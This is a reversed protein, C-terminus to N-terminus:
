LRGAYWLEMALLGAEVGLALKAAGLPEDDTCNLGQTIRYTRELVKAIDGYGGGRLYCIAAGAGLGACVAGSLEADDEVKKKFCIATLNSIALARYYMEEGLDDEMVYEQIPLCVGIGQYVSDCNVIVPLTSGFAWADLAAVTRARAINHVNSSQEMMIKGINAGGEKELGENALANNYEVQRRLIPEVDKIDMTTAFDYINRMSLISYDLKSDEHMDAEWPVLEYNLITLISKYLFSNKDM